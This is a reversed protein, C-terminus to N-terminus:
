LIGEHTILAEIVDGDVGAELAMAFIYDGTTGVIAMGDTDAQLPQFATVTGGIKLRTPGMVCIAAQEGSEPDNQLVGLVREGATDALEADGDSTSQKVVYYQNSSLDEGADLTIEPLSQASAM